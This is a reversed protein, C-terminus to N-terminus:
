KLWGERVEAVSQTHARVVGSSGTMGCFAVQCYPMEGAEILQEALHETQREGWYQIRSTRTEGNRTCRPACSDHHSMPEVSATYLVGLPPKFPHFIFLKSQGRVSRATM